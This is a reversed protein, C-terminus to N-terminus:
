RILHKEPSMCHEGTRTPMALTSMRQASHRVKPNNAIEDILEDSFYSPYAYLIRMWELGELKGLEAMLEALGKGDRRDMGAGPSVEARLRGCPHECCLGVHHSSAYFATLSISSDIPQEGYQNTDEAILNLEKVGSAVLAKAEELVGQWSKSRFKGRCEVIHM